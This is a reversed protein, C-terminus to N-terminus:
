RRFSRPRRGAASWESEEYAPWILKLGDSRRETGYLSSGEVRLVLMGAGVWRILRRGAASRSGARWAINGTAVGLRPASNM